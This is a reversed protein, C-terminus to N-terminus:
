GKKATGGRAAGWNKGLNERLAQRYAPNLVTNGAVLHDLRRGSAMMGSQLDRRTSVPNVMNGAGMIANKGGTVPSAMQRLTMAAMSIGGALGSAMGGVQYIIFCLVGTLAGIQLAAFMPNDSGGGELDAGAIFADYAAMAFTMVVAMIVITLVYNMVQSFWSDFFRATVPFLLAMIFLPGLAFMVGLAFKALIIVAAGLLTVLLTGLAVVLGTVIWGLASGINWGAEDAKQFATGVLDLGKNFSNDLTEYINTAAGGALAASLGSELGTFAEKVAGTYNGVNLAFASILIIKAAKLMFDQFPQQIKGAIIMYGFLTLYLTVGTIAIPAIVGILNGAAPDVFADTANSVTEGIFQFVMMDAAM